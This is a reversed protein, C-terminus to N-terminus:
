GASSKALELNAARFEEKSFQFGTERALTILRTFAEEEDLAGIIKLEVQLDEDHWAEKLFEKADEMSM